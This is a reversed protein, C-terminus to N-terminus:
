NGHLLSKSPDPEIYPKDMMRAYQRAETELSRDESQTIVKRTGDLTIATIISTGGSASLEVSAVQDFMLRDTTVGTRYQTTWVVSRTAEDVLVREEVPMMFVALLVVSAVVAMLAVSGLVFLPGLLNTKPADQTFDHFCQKCRTAETPVETGCSPCEKM